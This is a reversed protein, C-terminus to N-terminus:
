ECLTMRREKAIESSASAVNWFWRRFSPDSHDDYFQFKNLLSSFQRSPLSALAPFHALQQETPDTHSPAVRSTLRRSMSDGESLIYLTPSPFRGSCRRLLFDKSADRIADYRKNLLLKGTWIFVSDYHDAAIIVDPWLALNEPPVREFWTTVAPSDGNSNAKSVDVRTSYLEPALMGLDEELPLRLFLNRSSARDDTSQLPPGLLTGRRVHYLLRLSDALEPPFAFDVSATNGHM